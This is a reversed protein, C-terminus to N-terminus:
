SLSDLTISQPDLGGRVGTDLASVSDTEAPIHSPIVDPVHDVTSKM